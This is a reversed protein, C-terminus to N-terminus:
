FVTMLVVALVLLIAVIVFGIQMGSPKRSPAHDPFVLTMKLLAVLPMLRRSATRLVVLVINALVFVGLIWTWRGIGLREPPMVRGAIWTFLVSVAIPGAVVFARLVRALWPHAKWRDQNTHREAGRTPGTTVSM